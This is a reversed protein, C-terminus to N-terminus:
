SGFSIADVESLLQIELLKHGGAVTIAIVINQTSISSHLCHDYIRLNIQTVASVDQNLFIPCLTVNLLTYKLVKKAFPM